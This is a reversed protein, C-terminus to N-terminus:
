IKIRARLAASALILIVLDARNRVEGLTCTVKGVLQAGLKSPGHTMSTHTDIVGAIDEALLVAARQSECTSNGLGYILPRNAHALIGAATAVAADLTVPRGDVLATAQSGSHQGFFWERGLRCAREARVIRGDETHLDIDDCLCGCSTCTASTVITRDM